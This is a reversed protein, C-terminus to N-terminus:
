RRALAQRRAQFARFEPTVELADPRRNGRIEYPDDGTEIPQESAAAVLEHRAASAGADARAPWVQGSVLAGALTIGALAATILWPDRRPPRLALPRTSLHSQTYPAM